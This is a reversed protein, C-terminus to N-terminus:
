VSTLHFQPFWIFPSNGEAYNLPWLLHKSVNVLSLTLVKRQRCLQSVKETVSELKYSCSTATLIQALYKWVNM